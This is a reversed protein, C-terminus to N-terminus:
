IPQRLLQLYYTKLFDLRGQRIPNWDINDHATARYLKLDDTYNGLELLPMWSPTTYPKSMNNLTITMDEAQRENYLRHSWIIRGNDNEFSFGYKEANREFESTYTNIRDRNIQLHAWYWSPMKNQVLWDHTSKMEDFTEPPLGCILGVRPSIEGKWKNHYLEPLYDKVKKNQWGKGVLDAAQQNFSEVGFFCSVLGSEPLLEEQEAWKFILDLRLYTAYELKFPLTKVMKTFEVLRNRDANFTDDVMYYRTTGFQEYNRMMEERVLEMERTFDNKAKGIYPYQCFKCAFICGRGLEIPLTERPQIFDNDSWTHTCKNIDFKEKIQPLPITERIIVNGEMKEFALSQAGRFIHNCYALMTDESHGMFIVDFLSKNRYKKVFSQASAGGAIIKVHPYQKKIRLLIREIKNNYEGHESFDIMPSYGVIKTEATIYKEVLKWIQDESFKHIFDIVQVRYDFNRLYWAIQYTGLTRFLKFEKGVCATLLVIDM